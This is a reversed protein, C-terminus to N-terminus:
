RQRGRRRGRSGSGGPRGCGRRMRTCGCTPGAHPSSVGCRRRWRPSRLSRGPPGDWRVGLSSTLEERLHAEYVAGAARRHADLGRGDISSWRGDVGHVANVVVVHSHLHPDLNRSVGHTFAAGAFGTTEIVEREGGGTSRVAGLGHREIYRVAEDVAAVHAGVVSRATEEGGLAFVVSASKPASFTLDYAAM